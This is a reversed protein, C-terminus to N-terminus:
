KSFAAPDIEPPIAILVGDRKMLHFREVTRHALGEASREAFRMAEAVAEYSPPHHGHRLAWLWERMLRRRLGEPAETWMAHRLNLAAAAPPPPSVAIERLLWGCAADLSQTEEELLEAARALRPVIDTAMRENMLPFVKHRVWARKYRTDENTPDERWAVGRERLYERLAERRISLLPRVITLPGITEIARISALGTPGSGALLRMLLTEARDDAQHALVLADARFAETARHFFAHRAERMSEESAGARLAGEAVREIHAEIGRRRAAEAVFEADPASEPRQAHDLHAVALTWDRRPMLGAALELLAMSDGGASCGLLLRAGRRMPALADAAEAFAREVNASM